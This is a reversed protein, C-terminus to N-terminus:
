RLDFVKIGHTDFVQFDGDLAPYLRAYAATTFSTSVCTKPVQATLSLPELGRLPVM